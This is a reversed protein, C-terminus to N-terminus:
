LWTAIRWLRTRRETIYELYFAGFAILVPYLGVSYYSKANFWMYIAITIIFSAPILRYRKFADFRLFAIFALVLLFISNSFFLLQEKIFNARSMNELQTKALLKMHHIFPIDNRIQWLVNPLIILLFLIVAGILYKTFLLKREPFILWALGIGAMPFLVNYKNLFAIGLIGAALILYIAKERNLYLVIIYFLVTWSMVEFSNPQFLTNLRLIVSFTIALSAIVKAFLGGRLEEIIKWVFFITM